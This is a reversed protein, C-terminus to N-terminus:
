AVWGLAKATAIAEGRRRCGIKRYINSLHFKVTVESLGLQRAVFKNTGGEVVLLLVKMEKRTLGARRPGDSTPMDLAKLRRMAQRVDNSALVFSGIRKDDLLPQILQPEEALPMITGLRACAELAKLTDSRATTIDRHLRALHASWVRVTVRQRDTLHDNTLLVAVQDRLMPRTPVEWILHRLWAMVLAIEQPDVLRILNEVAGEVWTRNARSQVATLLDSAEQWRNGNQLIAVERLTIVLRFRNSRWEQVRWKDLFVRAAASSVHRSLAQGGYNIALEAVTPWIEGYAFRDFEENLFRVLTRVDGQEYRIVAKVLGLLRGDSPTEFPVRALTQGAHRAHSDAATLAGRLLCLIAQYLDVYFGLLHADAQRYHHRARRAIEDASDYERRRVAVELMANYFSGRQLHDDLPVEGLADFVLARSKDTIAIDEYMAMLFRFLRFDLPFRARDDLVLNLDLSEAGFRRTILHRARSVNGSKLAHMTYAFVLVNHRDRWDEPFGDLVELCQDLGHFHMFFERGGAYFLRLAEDFDGQKQAALIAAVTGDSRPADGTEPAVADTGQRASIPALATRFAAAVEAVRFTLVGRDADVRVLAPFRDCLEVVRGADVLDTALGDPARALAELLTKFPDSLLGLLEAAILAGADTAM